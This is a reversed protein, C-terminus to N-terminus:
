SKPKFPLIKSKIYPKQSLISIVNAKPKKYAIHAKKYSIFAEKSTKFPGAGIEDFKASWYFFCTANNKYICMFITQVVYTNVPQNIPIPIAVLQPVEIVRTIPSVAQTISPEARKFLKYSLLILFNLILNM